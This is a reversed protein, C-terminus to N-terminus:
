EQEELTLLIEGDSVLAGAEFNVEAVIGDRPAELTMEMKMAEMVILPDGAKVTVGAKANVAIIKGPMSATLTNSSNGTTTGVSSFFPVLVYTAEYEISIGKADIDFRWFGRHKLLKNLNLDGSYDKDDFVKIPKGNVLLTISNSDYSEIEVEVAEENKLFWVKKVEDLNNRWGEYDDFPTPTSAERSPKFFSVPNDQEASFYQAAALAYTEDLELLNPWILDGKYTEIFNTSINGNEFEEHSLCNILFQDNTPIGEMLCTTIGVDCQSIAEERNNAFGIVKAIMPDYFPTIRDGGEVGSDIRHNGDRTKFNDFSVTDKLYGISPLFDNAPDEAYLRAEVAHGEM